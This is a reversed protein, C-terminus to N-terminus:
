EGSSEGDEEPRYREFIKFERLQALPIPIEASGGPLRARMTLEGGTVSLLAGTYSKGTVTSITVRKGVQAGYEEPSIVRWRGVTALGQSAARDDGSALSRYVRELKFSRPPANGVAGMVNFRNLLWNVDDVRELSAMSVPMAPKAAIRWEGSGAMFAEYQEIFSPDTAWGADALAAMAADVNAAIAEEVTVGLEAACIENRKPNFRTADAVFEAEVVTVDPPPAPTRSRFVRMLGPVELDIMFRTSAASGTSLAMDFAVRESATRLKYGMRLNSRADEFGMAELDIPEFSRIEGCAFAEAPNGTVVTEVSGFDLRIGNLMLELEFPLNQPSTRILAGYSGFDVVAEDMILPVAGAGLADDPRFSLQSVTLKGDFGASVKRHSLSGIFGINRAFERLGEDVRHEVYFKSGFLAVAGLLIVGVVSTTLKNALRHRNLFRKFAFLM